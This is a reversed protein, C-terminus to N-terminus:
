GENWFVIRVQLDRVLIADRAKAILTAQEQVERTRDRVTEELSRNQEQLQLHLFRTELLNKIRLVVETLDFPKTLFDKAGCALARQKMAASMDATLVLIPVCTENGVIGKLQEMVEFGTRGPMHLDLLLIDPQFEAFISLVADPDTTSRMSTFGAHRLMRELLLINSPQDDVILVRGSQITRQEM